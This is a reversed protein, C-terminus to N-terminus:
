TTGGYELKTNEDFEILARLVEPELFIKNFERLGDSRYLEIGHGLHRAYVSDGLYTEPYKPKKDM